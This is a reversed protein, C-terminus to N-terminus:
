YIPQYYKKQGRYNRTPHEYIKKTVKKIEIPMTASFLWMSDRKPTNKLIFDIDEEFGMNLMEDAEDLVVYKINQLDIAKREILDILRGPTAVIIHTGQKIDRIQLGISAGGYVAVIRIHTLFKYFKRFRQYNTLM